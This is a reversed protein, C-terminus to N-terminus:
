METATVDFVHPPLTHGLRCTALELFLDIFEPAPPTIGASWAIQGNAIIVLECHPRTHELRKEWGRWRIHDVQAGALSKQRQYHSRETM